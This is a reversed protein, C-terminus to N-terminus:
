CAQGLGYKLPGPVGPTQFQFLFWSINQEPDRNSRGLTTALDSHTPFFSRAGTPAMEHLKVHASFFTVFMYFTQKGEKYPWHKIAFSQSKSYVFPFFDTVLCPLVCNINSGISTLARLTIFAFALLKANNLIVGACPGLGFSSRGNVWWSFYWIQMNKCTTRDIAFKSLSAGDPVLLKKGVLRFRTLVTPSVSKSKSLEM